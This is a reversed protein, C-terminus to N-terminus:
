VEVSISRIALSFSGEQRDAILFGLQQVRAPDLAAADPVTRGRWTPLFDTCQLHLRAWEGAPPQFRCQYNVGDFLTDVRLNFKYTKGDGLVELVYAKLPSRGLQEPARRVSAFGGNNDFSVTGSFVGHGAPDFVMQSCSRGGMVGDNVASWHTLELPNSFDILTVASM